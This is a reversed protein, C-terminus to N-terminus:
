KDLDLRTPILCIWTNNSKYLQTIMHYVASDMKEPRFFKARILNDRRLMVSVSHLWVKYKQPKLHIDFYDYKRNEGRTRLYLYNWEMYNVYNFTEMPVFGSFTRKQNNAEFFVSLRILNHLSFIVNKNLFQTTLEIKSM